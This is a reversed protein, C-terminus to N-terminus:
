QTNWQKARFTGVFLCRCCFFAFVFILKWANWDLYFSLSLSLFLFLSTSLILLLLINYQHKSTSALHLFLMLIFSSCSSWPAQHLYFFPCLHWIPFCISSFYLILNSFLQLTAFSSISEYCAQSLFFIAFVVWASICHHADDNSQVTFHVFCVPVVSININLNIPSYPARTCFWSIDFNFESYLCFNSNIGGSYYYWWGRLRGSCIVSSFVCLRASASLAFWFPSIIITRARWCRVSHEGWVSM